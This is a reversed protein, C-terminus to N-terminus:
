IATEAVPLSAPTGSGLLAEYYGVLACSTSEVSWRAADLRGRSGLQLRLDRNDLLRLVSATFDAVRPEALVAGACDKLVDYTGLEATSIVPVGLALAELLVLGQTETRSAFVFADGAAYCDWLPQGRQLYGVFVVNDNLKLRAVQRQLARRAPGEGAIILRAEPRTRRVQDLVELLFGINKEHAVRGVYVLTPRDPTLGHTHCFRQGDGPVFEALDLGTPIIRIPVELGYGRLAREIALSPVILGDLNRGMRRSVERAALRMWARPLLPFYHHFYEEFYTHYTEVVPIGLERALPVGARHAIFPTHIHILDFQQAALAQLCRRLPRLRMMRDEPDFPLYLSPVRLISDDTESFGPYDPAVLATEHGLDHLAKRFTAISTSVGNVRPYYVDSIMLIKM